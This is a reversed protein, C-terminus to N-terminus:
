SGGGSGSEPDVLARVDEFLSMAALEYYLSEEPEDYADLAESRAAEALVGVSILWRDPEDPFPNSEALRGLVRLLSSVRAVFPWHVSSSAVSAGSDSRMVSEVDGFVQGGDLVRNVLSDASALEEAAVFAEARVAEAMAAVCLLWHAPRFATPSPNALHGLPRLLGSVRGM